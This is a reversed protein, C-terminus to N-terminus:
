NSDGNGQDLAGEQVGEEVEEEDGESGKKGTGEVEYKKEVRRGTEDSRERAM